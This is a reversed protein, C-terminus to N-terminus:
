MSLGSGIMSSIGSIRRFASVTRVKRSSSKSGAGKVRGVSLSREERCVNRGTSRGVISCYRVLALFSRCLQVVILMGVRLLAGHLGRAGPSTRVSIAFPRDFSVKVAVFHYVRSRM